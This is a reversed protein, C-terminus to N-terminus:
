RYVSVPYDNEWVITRDIKALSFTILFFSTERNPMESVRAWLFYDPQVNKKTPAGPGGQGYRDGTPELERAKLDNFKQLNEVLQVRGQGMNVLRSRLRQLFIDLNQRQSTSLNEVHDVVITWQTHSANLAPWSLLDAAMQDTSSIVDKGQLGRGGDSLEDVPPRVRDHKKDHSCALGAALIVASLVTLNIWHKV